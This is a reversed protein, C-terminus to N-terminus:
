DCVSLDQFEASTENNAHTLLITESENLEWIFTIDAVEWDLSKWDGPGDPKGYRKEYKQKTKVFEALSGALRFKLLYLKEPSSCYSLSYKEPDGAPGAVTQGEGEVIVFSEKDSLHRAVEFRSMGSKLGYAIWAMGQGPVILTAILLFIRTKM